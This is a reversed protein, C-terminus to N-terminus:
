WLLGRKKKRPEEPPVHIPVEQVEPETEPEPEPPLSAALSELEAMAMARGDQVGRSYAQEALLAANESQLRQNEEETQSDPVIITETLIVPEEAAPEPVPEETITLLTM